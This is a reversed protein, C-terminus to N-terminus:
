PKRPESCRSSLFSYHCMLFAFVGGFLSSRMWLFIINCKYKKGSWIKGAQRGVQKGARAGARGDPRGATRGDTGDMRQSTGDDLFMCIDLRTYRIRRPGARIIDWTRNGAWGRRM